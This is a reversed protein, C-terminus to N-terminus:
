ARVGKAQYRLVFLRRALVGGKGRRKEKGGLESAVGAEVLRDLWWLAVKPDVGAARSFERSGVVGTGDPGVLRLFVERAEVLNM